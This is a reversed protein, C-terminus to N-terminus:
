NPLNNFLFTFYDFVKDYAEDRAQMGSLFVDHIAERILQMKVQSGLKPVLRVVEAINLFVDARQYGPNYAQPPSTAGAAACLVLTPVKLIVEGSQVRALAEEFANLWGQYLPLGRIPKADLDFDWEGKMSKHLCSHYVTMVGEGKLFPDSGGFWPKPVVYNHMESFAPSNLLLGDVSETHEATFLTAILAGSGVGMLLLRVNGDDARIVRIAAHIEEFHTEFNDVYGPHHNPNLSRGCKRMDLAYFNYRDESFSQGLQANWFYDSFSHLSLVAVKSKAKKCLTRVL